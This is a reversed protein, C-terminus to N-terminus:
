GFTHVCEGSVRVTASLYERLQRVSLPKSVYYGQVLECGTSRLLRLQEATEVGEALSRMGLARAVEVVSRVVASDDENWETIFAKDIKLVDLPLKKLSEFSSYGTGFDDLAIVIGISRLRKLEAIAREDVMGTETIELQLRETSLGSLKLADLVASRFGSSVLQAPSVNVAVPIDAPWRTAELCAMQLVQIGLPVILGTEEAVSIFHNPALVGRHPHNWRVLAEFGEIRGSDALVQPQFYLEFQRSDIAQGLEQLALARERARDRLMPSFRGVRNKGASKAQYLALDAFMVLTDVDDSDLPASCYGVTANVEIRNGNVHFPARLTQLCREFIADGEGDDSRRVILGFEDGGIRACGAGGLTRSLREAVAILLKDGVPHGLTDNVSKFNDLDLIGVRVYSGDRITELASQLESSFSRRNPLGTLADTAALWLIRREYSYKETVDSGVGRWGLFEAAESMRPHGSLSWWRDVGEIRVPVVIERFPVLRDLHDAIDEVAGRGNKTLGVELRDLLDQLSLAKLESAPIAAIQSLRGSAHSLKGWRDVEWLWDRTGGEFDDLLLKVTQREAAAEFEALCRSRFSSWQYLVGVCLIVMYLVVQLLLIQYERDPVSRLAVAFGLGHGFIWAFSISWITSLAMAGAGMVGICTATVIVRRSSDVVPLMKVVFVSMLLGLLVVELMLAWYEYRASHQKARWMKAWRVRPLWVRVSNLVVFLTIGGWWYRFASYESPVVYLAFLLVNFANISNAM